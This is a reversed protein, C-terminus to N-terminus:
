SIVKLIREINRLYSYQKLIKKCSNSRDIRENFNSNSSYDVLESLDPFYLYADGFIFQLNSNSIPLAGAAINKFSRCPIYKQENQWNGVISAGIASRNVLNLAKQPKIGAKTLSRTGGVREFKVDHANLIKQYNEIIYSNGQNLNNNWISGVWYETKKRELQPTLWLNENESLGWPQYLTNTTKDWRAVTEDIQMGIAASTFVQLQLYNNDSFKSINQFNHLVYKANKIVPLNQSKFGVAIILSNRNIVKQNATYDEVWVVEEGKFKLAEFFGQHIYRHSHRTNKLGWIVYNLAM